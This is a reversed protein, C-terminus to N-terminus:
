VQTIPALPDVSIKTEARKDCFVFFLAGSHHLLERMLHLLRRMRADGRRLLGRPHCGAVFM